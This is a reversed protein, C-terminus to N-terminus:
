TVDEVDFDGPTLLTATGGGALISYLHNRGDQESAFVVRGDAAVKLSGDETLEPLSDEQKEGSRWLM